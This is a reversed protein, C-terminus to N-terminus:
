NVLGTNTLAKPARRIFKVDASGALSVVQELNILARIARFQRFSNIITGGSAEIQALLADTVNANIDVLIRGDTEFEIDPQLRTVGVAIPQNRNQKLKFVFQADLKRHIASRSQKEQELARIQQLASESITEAGAAARSSTAGLLIGIGAVTALARRIQQKLHNM